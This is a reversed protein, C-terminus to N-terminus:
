WWPWSKSTRFFEERDQAIQQLIHPNSLAAQYAEDEHLIMVHRGMRWPGKPVDNNIIVLHGFLNM